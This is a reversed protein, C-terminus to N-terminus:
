IEIIIQIAHKNMNHNDGLEISTVDGGHYYIMTDSQAIFSTQIGAQTGFYAIYDGPEVYINLDSVDIEQIGTESFTLPTSSKLTKTLGDFVKLKLDGVTDVNAGIKVIKGSIECRKNFIWTVDGMSATIDLEETTGIVQKTAIGNESFDAGYIVLKKGM